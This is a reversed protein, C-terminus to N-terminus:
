LLQSLLFYVIFFIGYGQGHPPFICHFFSLTTTSPITHPINSISYQWCHPSSYKGSSVISTTSFFNFSFPKHPVCLFSAVSQFDPPETTKLIGFSMVRCSLRLGSSFTLM